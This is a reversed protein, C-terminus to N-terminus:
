RSLATPSSSIVRRNIEEVVFRNVWPSGSHRVRVRNRKRATSKAGIALGHTFIVALSGYPYKRLFKDTARASLSAQRRIRQCSEKLRNVRRAIEERTQQSLGPAVAKAFDDAGQVILSLDDVLKDLSSEKSILDKFYLEM